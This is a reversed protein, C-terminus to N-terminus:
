NTGILARTALEDAARNGISHVDNRTTHAYIHLFHVHGKAEVIKNHLKLVLPKNPVTNDNAKVGGPACKAGYTTACMIAYRSDTGILVNTHQTYIEKELIDLAQLIACLEGVNNTHKHTGGTHEPRIRTSVNRPDNPGFYVGMSAMRGKTSVKRFGGDTYVVIDPKFDSPPVFPWVLKTLSTRTAQKKPAMAHQTTSKKVRRGHKVFHAAEEQSSCKKYIAHPFGKVQAQCENWTNYIGSQRGVHVAYYAHKPM